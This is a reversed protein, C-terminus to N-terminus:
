LEMTHLSSRACHEEVRTHCQKHVTLGCDRCVYAQRGLRLPILRSCAACQSGRGNDDDDDDEDDEVEDNENDEDDDDDEDKDDM